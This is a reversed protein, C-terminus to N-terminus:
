ATTTSAPSTLVGDTVTSVSVTVPGGGDDDPVEVEGSSQGVEVPFVKAPEASGERRVAVVVGTPPPGAGADFGVTLKGGARAASIRPPPPVPPAAPAARAAAQAQTATAVMVGPDDFQPHGAPGRPSTADIPSGQPKTDGWFGPWRVWGPVKDGLDVLAPDVFPGHGDAHDFWVGTWHTGPRFYNAHSGRAVYVLPTDPDAPVTQVYSWDHVEASKHQSYVAQQPTGADDVRIQIMEWDGEHDGASLLPGALQFDDYYYFFWYQLWLRGSKDRRAHGHVRNRYRVQAHLAAAHKAYDRTSEGITDTKQVPTGDGYASQGLFDLTLTPPKALVTGDARKLVNAPSDTWIAALDAFYAEQSDYVLRPVHRALLMHADTM